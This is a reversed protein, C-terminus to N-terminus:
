ECLFTAPWPTPRKGCSIRATSAMSREVMDVTIARAAPCDTDASRGALSWIANGRLPRLVHASCDKIGATAAPRPSAPRSRASIAQRPVRDRLGLGRGRSGGLAAFAIRNIAGRRRRKEEDRSLGTSETASRAPGASTVSRWTLELIAGRRAATHYALIVFLRLHPSACASILRDVEGRDALPGRPPPRQPM